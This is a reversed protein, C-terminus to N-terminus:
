WKLSCSSIKNKIKIITAESIRLRKESEAYMLLTGNTNNVYINKGAIMSGSLNTSCYESNNIEINGTCIIITDTLQLKNWKM